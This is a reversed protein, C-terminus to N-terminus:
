FRNEFAFTTFVFLFCAFVLPLKRRNKWVFLMANMKLRIPLLFNQM